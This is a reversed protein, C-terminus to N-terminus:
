KFMKKLSLQEYRSGDYISLYDFVYRNTQDVYTIEWLPENNIMAPVIGILKCANCEKNWQNQISDKTMIETQNIITLDKEDKKLPYFVVKKDNKKTNGFMIHYAKEGHFRYIADIETLATQQLVKEESNAFGAVKSQQINNYLLVFYIAIAIVIIILAILGWKFWNFSYQRHNMIKSWQHVRIKLRKWIIVTWRREELLLFKM